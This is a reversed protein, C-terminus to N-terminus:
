GANSNVNSRLPDRSTRGVSSFGIQWRYTKRMGATMAPEIAKGCFRQAALVLTCM